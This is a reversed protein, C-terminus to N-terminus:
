DLNPDMMLVRLFEVLDPCAEAVRVRQPLPHQVEAPVVDVVDGDLHKFWLGVLEQLRQLVHGGDILHQPAMFLEQVSAHSLQKEGTSVVQVSV